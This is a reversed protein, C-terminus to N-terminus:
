WWQQWYRWKDYLVKQLIQAAPATSPVIRSENEPM